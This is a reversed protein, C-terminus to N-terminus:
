ECITVNVPSGACVVSVTVTGENSSLGNNNIIIYKFIDTGSFGINATYEIVELTPNWVATGNGPTDSINVTQVVGNITDNVLIDISELLGCTACDADNVAVPAENCSLVIAYSVTKACNGQDDCIYWKFWDVGGGAPVTYTIIHSNADYAVPTAKGESTIPNTNTPTSGLVFKFSAWDVPNTSFVSNTIDITFPDGPSYDCDIVFPARAEITIPPDDTCTPVSIVISGKNSASGLNDKLKYTIVVPDSPASAPITFLFNKGETDCDGLQEYTVGSPVIFNIEDWLIYTNPCITPDICISVARSNDPQCTADVFYDPAIPDCFSIQTSRTVECGNADVVIVKISSNDPTNQTIAQLQIEDSNSDGLQQFVSEDFTWIYTYPPTGGTTSTTFIYNALQSIETTSFTTCPDPTDVTVSKTCPIPSSDEVTFTITTDARCAEDSFVFTFDLDPTVNPDFTEPPGTWSMCGPYTTNEVTITYKYPIITGSTYPVTIRKSITIM